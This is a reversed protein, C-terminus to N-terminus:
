CCDTYGFVGSAGEAVDHIGLKRFGLRLHKSALRDASDLGDLRRRVDHRRHGPMDYLRVLNQRLLRLRDIVVRLLSPPKRPDLDFVRILQLRQHILFLVPDERLLDRSLIVMLAPKIHKDDHGDDNYIM